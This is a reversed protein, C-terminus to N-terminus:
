IHTHQNAGNHVENSREMKTRYYYLFCRDCRKGRSRKRSAEQHDYDKCVWCLEVAAAEVQDVQDVAVLEEGAAEVQEAVLEPGAAEVQEAVLEPGAAEVNGDDFEGEEDYDMVSVDDEDHADGEAVPLRAIPLQHTVPVVAPTPPPPRPPPVLDLSSSPGAEGQGTAYFHVTTPPPLPPPPPPRPPPPRPQPPPPVLVMSNIMLCLNHEEVFIPDDNSELKVGWRQSRGDFCDLVGDKGNLGARHAFGSLFVKDGAKM